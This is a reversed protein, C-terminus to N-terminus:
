KVKANDIRGEFVPAEMKERSFVPILQFRNPYENKLAMLEERFIVTNRNRNGYVLTFRSLPEEKLITKLISIVPTIGSGAAFAVYHKKNSAHQNLVFNGTPALVDLVMAPKFHTHAHSSFKGGELKKIAVRLENELPSSCISYSRRIEEGGIRSRVTINQGAKFNFEEKWEDPIHFSVSICEETENRIDSITLPRFHKAM